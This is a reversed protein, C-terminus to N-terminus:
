KNGQKKLFNEKEFDSAKEYAPYDPEEEFHFINIVSVNTFCNPFEKKLAENEIKLMKLIFQIGLPRGTLDFITRFRTKEEDGILVSEAYTIMFCKKPEVITGDELKELM